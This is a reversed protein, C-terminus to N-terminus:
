ETNWNNSLVNPLSSIFNAPDCLVLAACFWRSLLLSGLLLFGELHVVSMTVGKMAHVSPTIYWTDIRHRASFWKNPLHLPSNVVSQFLVIFAQPGGRGAIAGGVATSTTTWRGEILDTDRFPSPVVHFPFYSLDEEHHFHSLFCASIRIWQNKVRLLQFVKWSTWTPLWENYFFLVTFFFLPRVNTNFGHSREVFLPIM